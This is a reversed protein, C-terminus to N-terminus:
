VGAGCRNSAKEGPRHDLDTLAADIHQEKHAIDAKAQAFQEALGAFTALLHHRDTDHQLHM